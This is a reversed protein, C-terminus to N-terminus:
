IVTLLSVILSIMTMAVSIILLIYSNKTRKENILISDEIKRNYEKVEIKAAKEGKHTIIYDTRSDLYFETFGDAVLRETVFLLDNLDFQKTRVFKESFSDRNWVRYETIMLRLIEDALLLQRHTMFIVPSDEIFSRGWRYLKRFGTIYPNCERISSEYRVINLPSHLYQM